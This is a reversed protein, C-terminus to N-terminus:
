RSTSPTKTSTSLRRRESQTKSSCNGACPMGCAQDVAAVDVSAICTQKLRRVTGRLEKAYAASRLGQKAYADYQDVAKDMAAAFSHAKRAPAFGQQIETRKEYYWQIAVKKAAEFETQKTSGAVERRKHVFGVWWYKSNPRRFMRAQNELIPIKASPQKRPSESSNQLTDPLTSM